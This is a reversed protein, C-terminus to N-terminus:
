AGGKSIRKGTGKEEKKQSKEDKVEEKKDYEV